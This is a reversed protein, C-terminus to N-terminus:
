GVQNSDSLLYVLLFLTQKVVGPEMHRSLDTNAFVSGYKIKIVNLKGDFM